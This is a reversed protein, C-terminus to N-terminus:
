LLNNLAKYDIKDNYTRPINDLKIYDFLDPNQKTLKSIATKIKNKSYNKEYFFSIKKDNSVCFVKLYLSDLEKEILDLDLRIGHIKSIRKDRSQIFYYGRNDYYGIDGTNLEKIQRSKNLDRYSKSYGLMINKGKCFILGSEYPKLKRNLYDKIIMKVGSIPKGISNKKLLLDNNKIYSIRPSTETQGYMSYFDVKKKKSIHLLEKKINFDLRGGAQTIYRLNKNFIKKIGVKLLIEYLYPVGNFSTVKNKKFTDWFKKQIITDNSIVIKAGVQIHTNIISLMYSYFFPMNTIAVDNKNLKLYKIIAISNFYLNERSLKVFKSKGISGSTPLLIQLNKLLNHKFNSVYYFNKEFIYMKKKLNIQSRKIDLKDSLIYNPKYTKILYILENNSINKDILISTHNDFICYLYVVISGLSNDSM